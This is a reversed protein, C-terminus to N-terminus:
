CYWKICHDCNGTCKEPRCPGHHIVAM